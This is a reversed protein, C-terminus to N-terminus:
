APVGAPTGCSSRPLGRRCKPRFMKKPAESIEEFIKQRRAPEDLPMVGAPTGSRTRRSSAGERLGIVFPCELHESCKMGAKARRAGVAHMVVVLQHELNSLGCDIRLIEIGGPRNLEQPAADLHERPLPEQRDSVPVDVGEQECGQLGCRAAALFQRVRTDLRDPEM